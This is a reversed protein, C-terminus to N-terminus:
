FGFSTGDFAAGDFANGSVSKVCDVTFNLSFLGYPDHPECDIMTNNTFTFASIQAGQTKMIGEKCGIFTCNDITVKKEGSGYVAIAWSLGSGTSANNFECNRIHISRMEM